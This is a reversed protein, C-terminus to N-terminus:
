FVPQEGSERAERDTWWQNKATRPVVFQINAKTRRKRISVVEVIRVHAVRFMVLERTVGMHAELTKGTGEQLLKVRIAVRIWLLRALKAQDVAM